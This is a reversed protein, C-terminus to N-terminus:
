GDVASATGTDKRKQGQWLMKRVGRFGPHLSVGKFFQSTIVMHSPMTDSVIVDEGCLWSFRM